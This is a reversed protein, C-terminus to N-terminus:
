ESVPVVLVSDKSTVRTLYAWARENRRLIETSRTELKETVLSPALYYSAVDMFGIDDDSIALDTQSLGSQGRPISFGKRSFWVSRVQIPQSTPLKRTAVSKLSRSRLIEMCQIDQDSPGYRVGDVELYVWSADEVNDGFTWVKFPKLGVGGMEEPVFWPLRVSSLLAFHKRVFLLHAAFQREPPCSDMLQHHRSGLSGLRETTDSIDEVKKSDGGSRTRGEVLGMNVFPVHIFREGRLVYSTSNINLYRSDTYVKGVSPELGCLSAVDKWIPLFEAPARVAGDDGNVCAPITDLSCESHTLIEFSKRIAAANVICLVIFSVVSGMLQGWVQPTGEVMHGTLAKRFLLRIDEPAGVVQCIRDVVRNSLRPNLFDTASSYDLSHLLGPHNSLVSELFKPTVTEGILAFMRHKRMIRHLFKQLPKLVFYTLPPGKSIVRIKLAEPLAVLKVDAVEDMALRRVTQYLKQYRDIAQDKFEKRLRMRVVGEDEMEEESRDEEWAESFLKVFPDQLLRHRPLVAYLPASPAVDEILGLDILDGYTGFASRASTVSAKTSAACPRRELDKVVDLRHGTFIEDVVRDCELDMHDLSLPLSDTDSWLDPNPVQIQSIPVPRPSTLVKKTAIIAAQLQQEDPRPLGKKLYLVGVAFSMAHPTKMLQTIFRGATGGVLHMPHDTESDFPRPPLETGLFDSFFAATKYKLFKIWGCQASCLQWHQLTAARDFRSVRFGYLVLFDTITSLALTLKEKVDRSCHSPLSGGILPDAPLTTGHRNKVKLELASEVGLLGFPNTTSLAMLSGNTVSSSAPSEGLRPPTMTTHVNGSRSTHTPAM